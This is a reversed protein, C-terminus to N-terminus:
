QGVKQQIRVIVFEAPKLPAFGVLVIVQGADIDGQTMTSGLGCNVFYADAATTGQFTGQRFLGDMFSGISARLASWLQDNNPEFVAWQIGNYISGEIFMATRRVPIYRWEPDANTALTRSGWVVQGYGPFRRICNVGLPNLEDQEADEAIFELDALGLLGTETGAPAKWVGRRSDIKSWMGAAFGSPPINVTRAATPNSEANYDPNSVSIWPYYLASYTSTGLQLNNVDSGTELEKGDPADVIVMRSRTTEAHAIADQLVTEGTGGDWTMGPLCIINIDRMKVFQSFVSQYDKETASQGDTGGALDFTYTAPAPAGGTGQPQVVLQALLAQEGNQETGGPAAGLMLIPGADTVGASPASVVVSSNAGTEGSRLILRNGSAAATFNEVAPNAVPAQTVQAQIAAAVQTLNTGTQLGSFAVTRAISNVTVTLGTNNLTTFDTTGPLQGSISTGVMYDGASGVQLGVLASGLLLTGLFTRDIATWSVNRYTETLAPVAPLNPAPPQYLQASLTNPANGTPMTLRISNGWQGPSTATFVYVPDTAGPNSADTAAPSLVISSAATAGDALRVIYATSGGNLFFANVTHGMVDLPDGPFVGGYRSQYDDWRTVFEPTGIPGQRAFGVFAATSTGIAQIPQAGGRLEEIYVGPHLYTPM